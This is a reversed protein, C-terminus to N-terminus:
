TRRSATSARVGARRQGPPQRRGVFYVAASGSSRSPLRARWARWPRRSARGATPWPRHEEPLFDRTFDKYRGVSGAIRDLPIMETQRHPVQQHSKLITSLVEFPLLSTPKGGLRALVEERRARDHARFFSERRDYLTM